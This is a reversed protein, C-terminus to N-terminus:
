ELQENWKVDPDFGSIGTLYAPSTERQDEIDGALAEEYLARQEETLTEQTQAAEVALAQKAEKSSLAREMATALSNTNFYNMIRKNIMMTDTPTGDDNMWVRQTVKYFVKVQAQTYISPNPEDADRKKSAENIQWQTYLNAAGNRGRSIKASSTLARIQANAQEIVGREKANPKRSRFYTRGVLDEMKDRIGRAADREDRTSKSSKIIKNMQKISRQAMRRTLKSEYGLTGKRVPM